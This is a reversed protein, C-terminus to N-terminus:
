AGDTPYGLAAQLPAIIPLVEALHRRPALRFRGVAPRIEVEELVAGVAPLELWVLLDALRERPAACLAEYRLERYRPGLAQGFRRTVAVANAWHQANFLHPRRRYAPGTLAMGRWSAIDDRDFFVKRWFADTPGTHDSFAVDRGDRLLHVVRLNPLLAALVPLAFGSESLKWGWPQGPANGELHRALAAELLDPVLPDDAAAGYDPYHRIVLYRVVPLLDWADESANRHAGLFLGARDLLRALLRSGSHSKNCLVVPDDRLGRAALWDALRGTM